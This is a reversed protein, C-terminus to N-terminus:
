GLDESSVEIREALKRGVAIEQRKRRVVVPGMPLKAQCTVTSGESIGLRLLHARSLGDGISVIRVQSGRKAQDLTM